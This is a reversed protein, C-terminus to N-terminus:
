NFQRRGSCMNPILQEPKNWRFGMFNAPTTVLVYNSLQLLMLVGSKLWMLYERRKKKQLYEKYTKETPTFLWYIGLRITILFTFITMGADIVPLGTIWM